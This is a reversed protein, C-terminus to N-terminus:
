FPVDDGDEWTKGRRAARRNVQQLWDEVVALADDTPLRDRVGRVEMLRFGSRDPAVEITVPQDAVDGHLFVAYGAVGMDMMSAVCHIMAQSEHILEEVTRLPWIAGGPGQWAEIGHIQLETHPPVQLSTGLSADWGEIERQIRRPSNRRLLLRGLHRVYHKLHLVLPTVSLPGDGPPLGALRCLDAGQRSLFRSLGDRLNAPLDGRRWWDTWPLGHVSTVMFWDRNQAPDRPIDDPVLAPPPPLLLLARDVLPGARRVRVRQDAAMLRLEDGFPLRSKFQPPCTRLHEQMWAEVAVDLVRNLRQGTVVAEVVPSSAEGPLALLLLVLGPCAVAM